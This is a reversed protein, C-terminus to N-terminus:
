AWIMMFYTAKAWIKMAYVKLVQDNVALQFEWKKSHYNQTTISHIILMKFTNQKLINKNTVM